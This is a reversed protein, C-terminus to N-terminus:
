TMIRLFPGRICQSVAKVIPIRIQMEAKLDLDDFHQWGDPLRQVGNVSGPRQLCPNTHRAQSDAPSAYNEYGVSTVFVVETTDDEYGGGTPTANDAYQFIGPSGTPTRRLPSVSGFLDYELDDAWSPTRPWAKGDLGRVQAATM